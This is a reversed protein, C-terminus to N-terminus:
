APAKAHGGSFLTTQSKACIGNLGPIDITESNSFSDLYSNIQALSLTGFHPPCLMDSVLEWRQNSDSKSESGPIPLWPWFCGSICVRCVAIPMKCTSLVDLDILLNIFVFM